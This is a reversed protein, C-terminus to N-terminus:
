LFNIQYFAIFAEIIKDQLIFAVILVLPEANRLLYGIPALVIMVTTYYWADMELSGTYVVLGCMLVGTAILMYNMNIKRLVNIYKVAPWCLILGLINVIVFWLSLHLFLNTEITTTYNIIYANIDIIALLLTESSTIPIGLLLLPMLQTMITANNSTEASVLSKLDGDKRYTKKRKGIYKEYAYSLNTSVSTGVHPVLGIFSGIFSGRISSTFNKCYEKIHIAVPTNDVYRQESKYDSFQSKVQLLTPLVYLSVMVPFLPLGSYLEPFMDYPIYDGAFLERPVRMVGICSILFGFTFLIINQLISHGLLIIISLSAFLLIVSQIDNNYFKTIMEVATPLTIIVASLAIFAGVVSGMAANSIAINGLGRTFLKKGEKVAPLSSAEGPVGFVTAVVSGSFQSTSTLAMYFLLLQLLTSDLLFPYVLLLMVFNGVGPILGSIYGCIVGAGAHGLDGLEFM